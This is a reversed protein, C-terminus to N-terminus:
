TSSDEQFGPWLRLEKAIERQRRKLAYEARSAPNVREVTYTEGDHEVEREVTIGRGPGSGDLECWVDASARSALQMLVAKERCLDERTEERIDPAHEAATEAMDAAIRDVWERTEEDFREYAIRWDAFGDHVQANTNLEPAGGDNGEAHDNGELHETAPDDPGTTAGGHFRCRDRGKLPYKQCPTGDRTRAGCRNEVETEPKETTEM